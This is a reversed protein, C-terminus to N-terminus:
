DDVQSLDAGSVYAADAQRLVAALADRFAGIWFPALGDRIPTSVMSLVRPDFRKVGM